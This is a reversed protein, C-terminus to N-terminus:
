HDYRRETEGYLNEDPSIPTGDHMAWLTRAADIRDAMTAGHTLMASAAYWEDTQAIRERPM